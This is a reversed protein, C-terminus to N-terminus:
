SGADAASPTADSWLGGGGASDNLWERSELQEDNRIDSFTVVGVEISTASRRYKWGTSVAGRLGDMRSHLFQCNQRARGEEPGIVPLGDGIRNQGELTGTAPELRLETRNDQTDILDIM